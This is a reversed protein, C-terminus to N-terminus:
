DLQYHSLMFGRETEQNQSTQVLEASLYVGAGLNNRLRSIAANITDDSVGEAGWIEQALHERTIQGGHDVLTMLIRHQDPTLRVEREGVLANRSRKRLRLLPPDEEWLTAQAVQWDDVDLLGTAGKYEFHAKCLLQAARLLRRPSGQAVQLLDDTITSGLEQTCIQALDIHEDDSFFALRNELLKKLRDDGWEITVTQDPLRDRRIISRKLLLNRTEQSLFFKFAANPYELFPLHTLLPALIDAQVDPRRKTTEYEDLRDVLFEVVGIGISQAVTVFAAFRELPTALADDWIEPADNLDALLNAVPHHKLSSHSILDCLRQDTVSMQYRDWPLPDDPGLAHLRAYLSSFSLLTPNYHRLLQALEFRVAPSLNVIRKEQQPSLLAAQLIPPRFEPGILTDLLAKSGIRLLRTLHDEITVKDGTHHKALLPDFDTYEIRMISADVKSPAAKAALVVRLATKGGGKPAFVIVSKSGEIADYAEVNVFFRPLLAREQGAEITAFPNGRTFGLNSLWVDLDSRSQAPLQSSM